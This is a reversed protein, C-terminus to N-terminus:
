CNVEDLEFGMVKELIQRLSEDGLTASDTFDIPYSNKEETEIVCARCFMRLEVPEMKVNEDDPWNQRLLSQAM